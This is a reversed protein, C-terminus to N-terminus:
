GWTKRPRGNPEAAVGDLDEPSYGSLDTKKSFYQRLWGNTNEHSGRQWLSHPDCFYVKMGTNSTPQQHPAM